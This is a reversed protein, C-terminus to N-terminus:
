LVRRRTLDIIGNDFNNVLETLSAAVGPGISGSALRDDIGRFAAERVVIWHGAAGFRDGARMSNEFLQVQTETAGGTLALAEVKPWAEILAPVLITNRTRPGTCGTLLIVLACLLGRM